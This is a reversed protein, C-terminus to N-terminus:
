SLARSSAGVQSKSQSESGLRTPHTTGVKACAFPSIVYKETLCINSSNSLFELLKGPLSAKELYLEM